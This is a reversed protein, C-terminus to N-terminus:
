STRTQSPTVSTSHVGASSLLVIKFSFQNQVGSTGKLHSVYQALRSITSLIAVTLRAITAFNMKLPQQIGSVSSTMGSNLLLYKMKSTNSQDM